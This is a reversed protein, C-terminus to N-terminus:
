RELKLIDIQDVQLDIEMINPNEVYIYTDSERDVTDGIQINMETVTGDFNAILQYSEYRKRATTFNSQAQVLQNYMSEVTTNNYGKNVAAVGQEAQVVSVRAAVRQSENNSVRKSKNLKLKDLAVIAQNMLQKANEINTTDDIKYVKNITTSSQTSISRGSTYIADAIMIYSDITAQDM